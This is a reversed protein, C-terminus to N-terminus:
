IKKVVEYPIGKLEGNEHSIWVIDTEGFRGFGFIEGHGSITKGDMWKVNQYKVFDGRRLDKFEDGYGGRYENM